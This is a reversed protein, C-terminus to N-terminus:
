AVVETVRLRTQDQRHGQTRRYKKRKKFKFVTIKDGREQALIEGRVVAGALYPSGVRVQDQEAVLLVKSFEVRGGKEGPLRELLVTEGPAVKYQKGGSEMIAYM